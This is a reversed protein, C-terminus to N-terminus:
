LALRGGSSAWNDVVGDLVTIPVAGTEVILDNFARLDYRAGLKQKARERMRNIETHGIKYGCAQGPTGCYRDIESTMANRTRGSHDMAWQIAQDRTWRKAHLGTDVVLRVARFQQGQLYGLRGAWDTDYMGIEDALQEAYLAYGEVYANFGSILVRILPLKGSETLYAGQWAHGPIGEHYTLSPLSFRPWNETTKLNIYYISPRSGDISGPNMYGQGAGDQIEVPVRKVQIPAKLKLTFAKALQPRVAAIVGNLYALIQARGADTDPFLYKPDRGLAAMRAGVSGQTLGQAKLLGDMRDSIAQTQELGIQHIEDATLNTSTGVRLLWAYYADGDKLRWVGADATAKPQLGKLTALQRALAPYIEKEVIAAARDGYDGPLKKEAARRALSQTLRAERPPIKLLDAQQGVANALIFDPPMVGAGADRRIREDESGLVRAMAHLRALYADADAATAVKHQSDLFEPLASYAGSQQDVVHPSAAEGMASLLTNDGFDFPKADVGLQLAYAVTAKDLRARPSLPADPFAQLAALEQACFAAEAAHAGPSADGLESKLAARRGKDLGYSTAQEPWRRLLTETLQDFHAGLARDPPSAAATSAPKAKPAAAALGAAAGALLLHRRDLMM